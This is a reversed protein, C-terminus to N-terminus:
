LAEIDARLDADSYGGLASSLGPDVSFTVQGPTSTGEGFAVAVLDYEAPTDGLRLPGAENVFNHWYGTLVHKPLDVASPAPAAQHQGAEATAGLGGFGALCLFGAVTLASLRRIPHTMAAGETLRHQRVDSD